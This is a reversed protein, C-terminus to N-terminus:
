GIYICVYITSICFVFSILCRAPEQWLLIAPLHLVPPSAPLIALPRRRSESPMRSVASSLSKDVQCSTTCGKEICLSCPAQCGSDWLMKEVDRFCISITFYHHKGILNQKKLIAKSNRESVIRQQLMLRGSFFSSLLCLKSM